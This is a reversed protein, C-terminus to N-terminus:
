GDLREKKDKQAKDTIIHKDIQVLKADVADIFGLIQVAWPQTKIQPMMQPLGAEPVKNQKMVMKLMKDWQRGYITRCRRLAVGAEALKLEKLAKTAQKLLVMPAGM